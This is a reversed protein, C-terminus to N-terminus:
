IETRGEQGQEARWGMPLKRQHFDSGTDELSTELGPVGVRLELAAWLCGPERPSGATDQGGIM